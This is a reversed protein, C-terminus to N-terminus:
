CHIMIVNNRTYLWCTSLTNQLWIIAYFIRILSTKNRQKHGVQTASASMINKDQKKKKKITARYLLGSWQIKM